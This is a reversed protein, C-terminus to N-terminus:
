SSLMLNVLQKAICTETFTEENFIKSLQHFYFIWYKYKKAGANASLGILLKTQVGCLMRVAVNRNTPENMDFKSAQSQDIRNLCTINSLEWQNVISLGPHRWTARCYQVLLQQWTCLTYM